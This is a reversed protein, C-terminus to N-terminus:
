EAVHRRSHNAAVVTSGTLAYGQQALRVAAVALFAGRLQNM